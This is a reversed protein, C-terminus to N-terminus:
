DPWISEDYLSHLLRDFLATGEVVIRLKEDHPAATAMEIVADFATNAVIAVRELSYGQRLPLSQSYFDDFLTDSVFLFITLGYRTSLGFPTQFGDPGQVWLALFVYTQPPTPQEALSRILDIDPHDIRLEHALALFPDIQTRASAELPAESLRHVLGPERMRPYMAHRMARDIGRDYADHREADEVRARVAQYVEDSDHGSQTTASALVRALVQARVQYSGGTWPDSRVRDDMGGAILAATTCRSLMTLAGFMNLIAACLEVYDLGTEAFKAGRDTEMVRFTSQLLVHAAFLDADIEARLVELDLSHTTGANALQENIRRSTDLDTVGALVTEIIQDLDEDEMVGSWGRDHAHVHGIEHLLGLFWMTMYIENRPLYELDFVTTPAVIFGQSICLSRAILYSATTCDGHALSLEAILQLAYREVAAELIEPTVSWSMQKLGFLQSSAVLFRTSFTIPAPSLGPLSFMEPVGGDVWYVAVERGLEREAMSLVTVLPTLPERTVRSFRANAPLHDRVLEDLISPDLGTM